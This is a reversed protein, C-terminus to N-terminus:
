IVEAALVNILNKFGSNKHIKSQAADEGGDV